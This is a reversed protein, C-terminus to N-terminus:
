SLPVLAEIEDPPLARYMELASQGTVPHQWDPAIEVLPVIVFARDEIRPHPLILEEPARVRQQDRDLERWQRWTVESPAVVRGFALLDLDLTRAGWRTKRHRGHSDEIEHLRALLGEKSLGCELAAVANVYDPGAGPPYAPSQFFRSVATIRCGQTEELARLAARLTDSPGGSAGDLNAGLAILAVQDM